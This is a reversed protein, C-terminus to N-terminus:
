ENVEVLSVNISDFHVLLPINKQIFRNMSSLLINYTGKLSVASSVIHAASFRNAINKRVVTARRQIDEKIVSLRGLRWLVVM